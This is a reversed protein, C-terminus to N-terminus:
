LGDPQQEVRWARVQKAQHRRQRDAVALNVGGQPHQPHHQTLHHALCIFGREGEMGLRCNRRASLPKLWALGFLLMAWAAPEPVALIANRYDAGSGSAVSFDTLTLGDTARALLGVSGSESALTISDIGGWTLRVNSQGFAYRTFTNALDDPALNPQDAEAYAGTGLRVNLSFPQGIVIPIDLTLRYDTPYTGSYVISNGDKVILENVNSGSFAAGHAVGVAGQAFLHSTAQSLGGEGWSGVEGTAVELEVGVAAAELASSGINVNPLSVSLASSLNLSAHAIAVQNYHGVSNITLTDSFFTYRLGGSSGTHGASAYWAGGGVSGDAPVNATPVWSASASTSSALWGFGAAASVGASGVSKVADQRGFQISALQGRAAPWPVVDYVSDNVGYAIDAGSINGSAGLANAGGFASFDALAMGPALLGLLLFGQVWRCTKSAYSM